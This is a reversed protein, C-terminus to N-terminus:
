VIEEVTYVSNKTTFGILKDNSKGISQVPSTVFMGPVNVGNRTERNILLSEGVKIDSAIWGTIEYEVPPSLHDDTPKFLSGWVSKGYEDITSATTTLPNDAVAIKKLRIKM